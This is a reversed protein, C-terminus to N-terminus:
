EGKLKSTATAFARQEGPTLTDFFSRLDPANLSAWKGDPDKNGLETLEGIATTYDGARFSAMFAQVHAHTEKAVSSGMHETTMRAHDTASLNGATEQQSLWLQFSA